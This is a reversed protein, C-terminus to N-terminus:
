AAKEISSIKILKIPQKFLPSSSWSKGKGKVYLEKKQCYQILGFTENMPIGKYKHDKNFKFIDNYRSEDIYNTVIFVHCHPRLTKKGIDNIKIHSSARIGLKKLKTKKFYQIFNGVNKTQDAYVILCIVSVLKKEHLPKYHEYFDQLRDNRNKKKSGYDTITTLSHSDPYKFRRIYKVPVQTFIGLVSSITSERDIATFGAFKSKIPKM